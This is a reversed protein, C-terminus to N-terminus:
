PSSHPPTMAPIIVGGIAGRGDMVDAYCLSLERYLAASVLPRLPLAGPFPQRTPLLEAFQRMCSLLLADGGVRM